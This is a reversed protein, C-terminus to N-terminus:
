LRTINQLLKGNKDKTSIIPNNINWDIQLHPDNYLLTEEAAPNYYKDVLYVVIAEDSLTAYGNAFGVPVWLINKNEESLELEIHEGFYKSNARLDVEVFKALGKVVRILKNQPPNTQYHLGRIVNKKSQSQNEQIFNVNIGYKKLEDQRFIEMFYGRDDRFIDPKFLKINDFYEDILILGM